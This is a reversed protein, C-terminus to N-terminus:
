GLPGNDNGNGNIVDNDTDTNTNTTINTITTGVGVGVDVHRFRLLVRDAVPPALVADVQELMMMEIEGDHHHHHHHVLCTTEFDTYITAVIRKMGIYKQIIRENTLWAM